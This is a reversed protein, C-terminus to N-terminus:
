MQAGAEALSQGDSVIEDAGLKRTSKDKDPSHSVAITEFGAATNCQCTRLPWRDGPVAV